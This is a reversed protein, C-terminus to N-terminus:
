KKSVFAAEVYDLIEVDKRGGRERSKISRERKGAVHDQLLARWELVGETM